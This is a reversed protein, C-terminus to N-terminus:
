FVTAFLVPYHCPIQKPRVTIITGPIIASQYIFNPFFM